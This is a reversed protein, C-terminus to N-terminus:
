QALQGGVTVITGNLPGLPTYVEQLAGQCAHLHGASNHKATPQHPPQKNEEKASEKFDEEDLSASKFSLNANATLIVWSMKFPKSLARIWHKMREQINKHANEDEGKNRDQSAHCDFLFIPHLHFHLCLICVQSETRTTTHCHCGGPFIGTKTVHNITFYPSGNTAISRAEERRKRWLKLYHSSVFSWSTVISLSAMLLNAYNYFVVAVWYLSGISLNVRNLKIQWYSVSQFRYFTYGTM